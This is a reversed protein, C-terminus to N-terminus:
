QVFDQRGVDQALAAPAALPSIAVLASLTLRKM